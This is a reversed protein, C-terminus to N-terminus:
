ITLWLVYVLYNQPFEHQNSIYIAVGMHYLLYQLNDFAEMSCCSNKRAVHNIIKLFARIRFNKTL